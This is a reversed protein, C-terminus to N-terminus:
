GVDENRRNAFSSQSSGLMLLDTPEVFSLVMKEVELTFSCHSDLLCNPLCLVLSVHTNFIELLGLGPCDILISSAAKGVIWDGGAVDM